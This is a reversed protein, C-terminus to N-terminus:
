SASLKTRPGHLSPGELRMPLPRLTKQCSTTVSMVTTSECNTAVSMARFLLSRSTWQSRGQIGYACLQDEVFHTREVKIALAFENEVRSIMMQEEESLEENGYKAATWHAILKNHDRVGRSRMIALMEKLYRTQIRDIVRMTDAVKDVLDNWRNPYEETTKSLQAPDPEVDPVWMDAADELGFLTALASLRDRSRRDAKALGGHWARGLWKRDDRGFKLATALGKFDLDYVAALRRLNDRFVEAPTTM